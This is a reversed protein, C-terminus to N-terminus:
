STALSPTMITTLQNFMANEKLASPASFARLPRPSKPPLVLHDLDKTVRVACECYCVRQDNFSQSSMPRLEAGGRSFAFWNAISSPITM